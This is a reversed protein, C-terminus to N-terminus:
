LISTSDMQALFKTHSAYLFITHELLANTSPLPFRSFAQLCPIFVL